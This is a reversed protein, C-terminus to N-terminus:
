ELFLWSLHFITSTMSKGPINFSLFFMHFNWPDILCPDFLFYRLIKAKIMQYTNKKATLVSWWPKTTFTTLITFFYQYHQIINTVISVMKDIFICFLKWVKSKLFNSAWDPSWVSVSQNGLITPRTNPWVVSVSDTTYQVNLCAAEVSLPQFM